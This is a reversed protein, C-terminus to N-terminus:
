EAMSPILVQGEIQLSRYRPEILQAKGARINEILALSDYSGTMSGAQRWGNEARAFFPISSSWSDKSLVLVENRGDQDLDTAWLVCGHERCDWEPTQEALFAEAGEETPGFWEFRQPKLAETKEQAASYNESTEAIRLHERLADRQAASFRQESDLSAQLETFVRRGPEGLQFRLHGADFAEVATQGSLLRQVQNRASLELPNLWPSHLMVVLACVLLAIGPNSARLSGLWVPQQRFVAWLGALAHVFTVLVLVAGFFRWPTLGYQEIRLYISYGAIGSLVPLCLLCADVLRRLWAPYDASRQGDQFVGNVFFLNVAVLCLLIATSHGTSWVPGLGVFPLSLSFLLAILASLPLLFRCLALLIGRLLGIVRDNDRGMRVGLAFVLMSSIWAFGDTFFLHEFLGIGIMDFLGAWLLLLLWFVGTLLGGLLIIFVNNWAHQFLDQYRLRRGEATPWSLIFATFIYCLVVAGGAWSRALIRDGGDYAESEQLSQWAVWSTIAACLVGLFLAWLWAGRERARGGLLQLELGTVAVLSVLAWLAVHSLHNSAWGSTSWWFVLGQTLGIALYALLSHTRTITM